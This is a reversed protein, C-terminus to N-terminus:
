IGKAILRANEALAIVEDGQATRLLYYVARQQSSLTDAVLGKVFDGGKELAEVFDGVEIPLAERVIAVNPLGGDVARAYATGFASWFMAESIAEDEKRYITASGTRLQNRVAVLMEIRHNGELSVEALTTGSDQLVRFSVSGGEILVDNIYNLHTNTRLGM